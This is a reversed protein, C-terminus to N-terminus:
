NSKSNIGIMGGIMGFVVSLTIMIISFINLSFDKACISSIIYILFVYIFACIGGFFMGKDKRNRGMIISGFFISIVTIIIIVPNIINESLTTYSLCLGFILFLVITFTFSLATCKIITVLTNQTEKVKEM